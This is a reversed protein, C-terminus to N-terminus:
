REYNSRRETSKLLIMQRQEQQSSTPLAEAAIQERDMDRRKVYGNQTFAGGYETRYQSGIESYDLYPKVANLLDVGVSGHEVLWVGLEKVSTVGEIIEYQELSAATRLVDDLNFVSEARLAGAFVKKAPLDMADVIEALRNLKQIGGATTLDAPVLTDEFHWAIDDGRIFLMDKNVGGRDGLEIIKQRVQEETAPFTVPISPGYYENSIQLNM